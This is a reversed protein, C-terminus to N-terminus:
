LATDATSFTVHRRSRPDAANPLLVQADVTCGKSIALESASSSEAPGGAESSDAGTPRQPKCPGLHAALESASSSEAPGEAESSDAGTPRQPKCPGAQLGRRIASRDDDDDFPRGRRQMDYLLREKEAQLQENRQELRRKDEDTRQKEQVTEAYSLRLYLEASHAAISGVGISVVDCLVVFTAVKGCIPLLVLDTTLMLGILVNKRLFAIGQSGNALAAALSLLPAPLLKNGAVGCVATPAALNGVLCAAYSIVMLVTWIWSGIRQGHASDYERHILARGVLGLTTCVVALVSITRLDPDAWVLAIWIINGVLLLAGLFIHCAFAQRYLRAAFASEHWPDVFAGLRHMEINGTLFHAEFYDSAQELDSSFESATTERSSTCEAALTQECLETSRECLERSRETFGCLLFCPPRKQM